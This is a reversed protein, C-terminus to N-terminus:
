AGCIPWAPLTLSRISANMAATSQPRSARETRRGKLRIALACALTPILAGAAAVLPLEILAALYDTGEGEFGAGLHHRTRDSTAWVLTAATSGLASLVSRRLDPRHEPETSRATGYGSPVCRAGGRNQM